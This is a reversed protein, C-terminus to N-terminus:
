EALGGRYSQGTPIVCPLWDGNNFSVEGETAGGGAYHRIQFIMGAWLTSYTWYTQNGVMSVQGYFYEKNHVSDAYVQDGKITLVYPPYATLPSDFQCRFDAALANTACLTAALLLYKM